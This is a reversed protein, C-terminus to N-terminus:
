GSTTPYSLWSSSHDSASGARQCRMRSPDPGFGTTSYGCGVTKEACGSIAIAGSDRGNISANCDGSKWVMAQVSCPKRPGSPAASDATCAAEPRLTGCVSVAMTGIGCASAISTKAPSIAVGAGHHHDNGRIWISRQSAASAAHCTCYLCRSHQPRKCNLGLLRNGLQLLHFDFRDNIRSQLTGPARGNYHSTPESQTPGT